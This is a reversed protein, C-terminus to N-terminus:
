RRVTGLHCGPTRRRTPNREYENSIIVMKRQRKQMGPIRSRYPFRFNPTRARGSDSSRGSGDDMFQKIQEEYSAYEYGMVCEPMTHDIDTQNEISTILRLQGNKRSEKRVDRMGARLEGDNKRTYARTPLAVLDKKNIITQGKLILNNFIDVFVDNWDELRNETADKSM